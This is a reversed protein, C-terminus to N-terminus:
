RYVFAKDAAESTSTTESDAEEQAASGADPGPVITEQFNAGYHYALHRQSFKSISATKIGGELLHRFSVIRDLDPDHGSGPDIDVLLLRM